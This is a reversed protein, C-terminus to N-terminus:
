AILVMIAARGQAARAPWEDALAGRIIRNM